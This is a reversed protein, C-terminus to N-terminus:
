PLPPTSRSPQEPMRQACALRRLNGWVWDWRALSIHCLFPLLLTELIDHLACGLRHLEKDATDLREDCTDLVAERRVGEQDVEFLGLQLPNDSCRLLDEVGEAASAVLLRGCTEVQDKGSELSDDGKPLSVRGLERCTKIRANHSFSWHINRQIM